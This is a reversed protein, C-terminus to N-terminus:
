LKKAMLFTRKRTGIGVLTASKLYGITSGQKKVLHAIQTIINLHLQQTSQLLTAYARHTAVAFQRYVYAQHTSGILVKFLSHGFATKAFIQIM